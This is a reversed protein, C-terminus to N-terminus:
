SMLHRDSVRDKIPDMTVCIPHFKNTKADAILGNQDHMYNGNSIIVIM